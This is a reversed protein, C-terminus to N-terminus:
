ASVAEPHMKDIEDQLLKRYQWYNLTGPGPLGYEKAFPWLGDDDAPLRLKPTACSAIFNQPDTKDRAKKIAELAEGDGRAKRLKGILARAPKEAVGSNTLVAVGLDFLEKVPDSASADTVNTVSSRDRDRTCAKQYPKTVSGANGEANSKRKKERYAAVRRNTLARKKASNGCHRDFNPLEIQDGIIELWGANKMAEAFGTVGALSDIRKLLTVPANGNETHQDFWVWVRFIRTFVIEPDLDVQAAIEFIEPKDPTVIEVKLWDYAM